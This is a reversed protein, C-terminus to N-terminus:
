FGHTIPTPYDLREGQGEANAVRQQEVYARVRQYYRDPVLMSLSFAGIVGNDYQITVQAQDLGDAKRNAYTFERFNVAQNGIAFVQEADLLQENTDLLKAIAAKHSKM